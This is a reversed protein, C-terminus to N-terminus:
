HKKKLSRCNFHILSLNKELGKYINCIKENYDDPLYYHTDDIFNDQLDRVLDLRHNLDDPCQHDVNNSIHRKCLICTADSM